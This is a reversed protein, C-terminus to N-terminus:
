SALLRAVASMRRRDIRALPALSEGADILAAAAIRWPEHIAAEGGARATPAPHGVREFRDPNAPLFEGGWLDGAPGCGTGDFAVGIAPGRLGHEALCAVIHAHHHQVPIPELGCALAWRTSHYEPHLDHAVATPEVDLLTGLARATESFRL